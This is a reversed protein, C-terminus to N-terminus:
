GAAVTEGMDRSTGTNPMPAALRNRPSLRSGHFIMAASSTSPPSPSFRSQPRRLSAVVGGSSCGYFLVGAGLSSSPRKHSILGQPDYKKKAAKRRKKTKKVAKVAKKASKKAKRRKKKKPGNGTFLRVLADELELARTTLASKKKKKAM